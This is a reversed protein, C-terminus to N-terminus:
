AVLGLAQLKTELEAVRTQLNAIVSLVSNAEDATVFGFPSSNTVNQIAYDPTGPATHTITTLQATLAAPQVVPTANFFGIKQTTATGIKTGTTTGVVINKADAITVTDNLTVGFLTPAIWSTNSSNRQKIGDTTHMWLMYAATTSPAVTTNSNVTLVAQLASNIDALVASGSGNDIVYDHQAM